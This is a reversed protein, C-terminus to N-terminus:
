RGAGREGAVWAEWQGLAKMQADLGTDRLLADVEAKTQRRVPRSAREALGWVLAAAMATNARASEMDVKDLTDSAAHYDPLYPGADQNAVLNPVGALLFDFNDTGDIAEASNGPAALGAAALAEDVPKRLEDRGNLFFGAARGSGVDFIVVAVHQDLEAAHRRVYGLSGLMGQEEGTFLVFRITRRPRLGLERIGRAVDIVLAVNVGNDQAGTGLDWSDLHAGLLVVEEPLERGRIEAVVNRSEAPGSITNSLRLRVRVEGDELLRALRAAHERSVLAAPVPALMGNMGVPHRYLLGRPRTSQLLLAAVGAKSAAEVLPANRLYEAFLDGLTKMEGTRVLAVAGRASEGLKAFARPTGDGADVLRADLAQEGPTSASLPAAVVPIAFEEPYVCVAEAEEPLWSVPMSFPETTVADVGAQRLKDVSWDIARRCWPSGTV